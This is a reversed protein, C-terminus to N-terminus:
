NKTMDLDNLWLWSIADKQWFEWLGKHFVARVYRYDTWCWYWKRLGMIAIQSIKEIRFVFCPSLGKGILRGNNELTFGMSVRLGKKGWWFNTAANGEQQFFKKKLFFATIIYTYNGNFIQTVAVTALKRTPLMSTKARPLEPELRAHYHRSNNQETDPDVWTYTNRSASILLSRFLTAVLPPNLCVHCLM